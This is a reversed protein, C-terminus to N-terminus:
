PASLKEANEQFAADAVEAGRYIIDKGIAALPQGITNRGLDPLGFTDDIDSDSGISSGKDGM